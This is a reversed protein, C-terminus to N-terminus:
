IGPLHPADADYQKRLIRRIAGDGTVSITIRPGFVLRQLAERCFAFLAPTM